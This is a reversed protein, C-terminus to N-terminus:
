HMIPKARQEDQQRQTAEMALQQDRQQNVMQTEKLTDQMNPAPGNASVAAHFGPTVSGVWLKGDAVGVQGVREVDPIGNRKAELMAKAVVEDPVSAPAAGRIKAFMAQDAPSLRALERETERRDQAPEGALQGHVARSDVPKGPEAQSYSPQASERAGVDALMDSVQTKPAAVIPNNESAAYGALAPAPAARVEATPAIPATQQPENALVTQPKQGGTAQAPQGQVKAVEAGDAQPVAKQAEIKAQQAVALAQLTDPDVHGTEALGHDRQLHRVAHETAADFHGREPVPADDPGRYGVRQLRYQLLEVEQGRDGRQLTSDDPAPAPAVAVAPAAPAPAGAEAVDPKGTTPAPTAEAPSSAIRPASEAEAVAQPAVRPAAAAPAEVAASPATEPQRPPPVPNASQAAIVEPQPQQDPLGSTQREPQQPPASFEGNSVTPAQKAEPSVAAPTVPASTASAVPAGSSRDPVAEADRHGPKSPPELPKSAALDAEAPKPPEVPAQDVARPVEVKTPQVSREAAVAGIVIEPEVDARGAAAVAERATGQVEDRTLGVRNAERVVQELAEQQKPSLNAIRLEPAEPSTPPPSRLDLMALQVELPSTVAHVRNAGDADRGIHEIPSDIDFNGAANRGLHLSTALPAVGQEHQTRRVAELAAELQQPNPNVNHVKYTAMLDAREIDELTPPQRTPIVALQQEHQALQPQLATRTGELEQRLNGAAVVSEGNRQWQGDATRQYLKGDSAVLSDDHLAASISAPVTGFREWGESRHAMAYRAAMPAPGNAINDLITQEAARNLEDAREPGASDIRVMPVGRQEFGVVVKRGWEGSVPNREWDARRLSPPDTEAAAQSYPNRPSELKGIALETASNSARYSLENAKEPDASFAQKVPNNQGDDSLDGLDQRVWQRGNSQWAVGDRDTQKFTKYSDLVTAVHEGVHAGAVAAGGVVIFSVVGPGTAAATAVMGATAGGIWGGTGRAAYHTLTSQAASLNDQALLTSAQNASAKADAISAAVGAVGAAAMVKAGPSLQTPAQYPRLEVNGVKKHWEAMAEEAPPAAFREPLSRVVPTARQAVEAVAPSIPEPRSRIAAEIPDNIVRAGDDPMLKTVEGKPSDREVKPWARFLVNGEESRHIVNLRPDYTEPLRRLLPESFLANHYDTMLNQSRTGLGNRQYSGGIDSHAGAVSVSLFRGDESVGAPIIRDVPFLGRREDAANIQFGSVVSPPLRRDLKEMAGTPVPDYLGVTMPTHGPFQHFHPYTKTLKGQADHVYEARDLNPIGREHIMRALLPVQSAGRSFGEAHIAIKADPDLRYIKQAREVLEQYTREAISESTRGTAADITEAVTNKQTGPGAKYVVDINVGSHKLKQVQTEFRAVNTAHLPDKGVDNGTGDMLGILLYSHRDKTDLLPPVKFKYLEDAARDYSTLHEPTATYYSVDAKPLGDEALQVVKKKNKTDEMAGRERLLDEDM